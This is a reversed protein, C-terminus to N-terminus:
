GTLEVMVLSYALLFLRPMITVSTKVICAAPSTKPRSSAAPSRIVGSECSWM